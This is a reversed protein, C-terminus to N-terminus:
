DAFTMLGNLIHAEVRDDKFSDREVIRRSSHVRLLGSDHLFYFLDDGIYFQAQKKPQALAEVEILHVYVGIILVIDYGDPELVALEPIRPHLLLM